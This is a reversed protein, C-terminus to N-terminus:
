CWGKLDDKKNREFRKRSNDPDIKFRNEYYIRMGIMLKQMAVSGTIM